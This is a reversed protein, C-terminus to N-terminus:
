YYRRSAPLFFFSPFGSVPFFPLPLSRLMLSRASTAATQSFLFADASPLRVSSDVHRTRWSAIVSLAPRTASPNEPRRTGTNLAMTPACCFLSQGALGGLPSAGHRRRHRPAASPVRAEAGRTDRQSPGDCVHSIVLATVLSYTKLRPFSLSNRPSIQDTFCTGVLAPVAAKEGARGSGRPCVRAGPPCGRLLRHPCFGQERESTQPPGLPVSGSVGLEACEQRAGSTSGSPVAQRTM